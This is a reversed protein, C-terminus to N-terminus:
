KLRYFKPYEHRSDAFCVPLRDNVVLWVMCRGARRRQGDSLSHRFVEGCLQEPTYAIDRSLAPINQEVQKAIRERLEADGSLPTTNDNDM